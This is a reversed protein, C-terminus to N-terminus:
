ESPPPVNNTYQGAQIEQEPPALKDELPALKDAVANDIGDDTVPVVLEQKAMVPPPPAAGPDVLIFISKIKEFNHEFSVMGGSTQEELSISDESSAILRGRKNSGDVFIIEVNSGVSFDVDAVDLLDKRIKSRQSGKVTKDAQPALAEIDENSFRDKDTSLIPDYEVGDEFVIKAAADENSLPESSPSASPLSNVIEQNSLSLGPIIIQAGRGYIGAGMMVLGVLSIAFGNRAQAKHWKVFSYIPGFVPVLLLVLLGWLFSESFADLLVMIMGVLILLLALILVIQALM